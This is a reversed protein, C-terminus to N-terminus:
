TGRPRLLYQHLSQPHLPWSPAPVEAKRSLPTDRRSPVMVPTKNAGSSEQRRSPPPLPRLLPCPHPLLPSPGGSARSWFVLPCQHTVRRSWGQKCAGPSQSTGEGPIQNPHRARPIRCRARGATSANREGSSCRTLLVAAPPGLAHAQPPAQGARPPALLESLHTPHPNAMSEGTDIVRILKREPSSLTM